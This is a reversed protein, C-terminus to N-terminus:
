YRILDGFRSSIQESIAKFEILFGDHGYSSDIISLTADPITKALFEQEAPPCLIDSSIGIVLTKSKIKQLAVEPSIRNRSIDHSDMARSLTYYSFANFRMSLKDGQYRIYSDASFNRIREDSDSQAKVFTEYNRYTLMGIGRATKLGNKGAHVQEEKWTADSEIAMRQATHIAIGWASEKASTALLVINEFLDPEQIAWELLQYGGMSGGLGFQIKGIGLFQRLLRHANVMDRITIFPFSHFYPQGSKPNVSLPGTSGYCSGIINACVIFHDQPNYLKGEGVLGSWWDAADSNATLAHFVWVVNNKGPQFQGYTHYAIELRPLVEGSELSFPLNYTFIKRM